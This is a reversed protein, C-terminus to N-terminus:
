FLHTLRAIQGYEKHHLFGEIAKPSGTYGNRHHWSDTGSPSRLAEVTCGILDKGTKHHLHHTYFYRHKTDSWMKPTEHAMLSALSDIKAGDGHTSGILNKGYQYYKRHKISVDFTINSPNMKIFTGNKMEKSMKVTIPYCADSIKKSVMKTWNDVINSYNYGGKKLHRKLTKPISSSFPRLGQIFTHTKSNNKKHM